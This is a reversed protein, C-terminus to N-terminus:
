KIGSKEDLIEETGTIRYGNPLKNKQIISNNAMEKSKAEIEKQFVHLIPNRIDPRIKIKYLTM